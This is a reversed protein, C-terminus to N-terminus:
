DALKQFESRNTKLFEGLEILGDVLSMCYEDGHMDLRVKQLQHKDDQQSVTSGHWSAKFNGTNCWAHDSLFTNLFLAISVTRNTPSMSDYVEGVSFQILTEDGPNFGNPKLNDYSFVKRPTGEM